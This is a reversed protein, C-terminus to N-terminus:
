FELIKIASSLLSTITTKFIISQRKLSSFCLLQCQRYCSTIGPNGPIIPEGEGSTKSFSPFPKLVGNENKWM